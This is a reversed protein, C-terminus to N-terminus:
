LKDNLSTSIMQRVNCKDQPSDFDPLLRMELVAELALQAKTDM